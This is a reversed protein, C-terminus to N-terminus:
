LLKLKTDSTLRELKLDQEGCYRVINAQKLKIHTMTYRQDRRERTPHLYFCTSRVFPFQLQVTHVQQQPVAGEITKQSKFYIQLLSIETLKVEICLHGTFFNKRKKRFGNQKPNSPATQPQWQLETSAQVNQASRHCTDKKYICM